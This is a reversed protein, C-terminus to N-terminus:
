IGTANPNYHKGDSLASKPKRGRYAGDLLMKTIWEQDRNKGGLLKELRFWDGRCFDSERIAREIADRDVLLKRLESSKRGRAYAKVVATSPPDSDAGHPVLGLLKLGNWWDIWASLEPPCDGKPSTLDTNDQGTIDTKDTRDQLPLQSGDQQYEAVLIWGIRNSTLVKLAASFVKSACGTKMELDDIDLPGNEDALVGRTPCKAAVQLLLVWAGYIAAGDPMAMIRRFGLGDHKVPLAVWNMRDVKRTQAVEFHRDWERIKYLPVKAM